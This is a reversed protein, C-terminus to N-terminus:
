NKAQHTKGDLMTKHVAGIMFGDNMSYTMKVVEHFKQNYPLLRLMRFASEETLIGSAFVAEIVAPHQRYHDILEIVDSESIQNRYNELMRLLTQKKTGFNQEIVNIILVIIESSAKFCM